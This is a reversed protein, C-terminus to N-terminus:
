ELRLVVLKSVRANQKIEVGARGVHILSFLKEDPETIFRAAHSVGCEVLREHPQLIAMHGPPLAFEENYEAMFEGAPLRWWGYEDSSEKKVPDLAARKGPEFEGGGFDLRGGSAVECISGVTLDLSKAHVQKKEYVLNAVMEAVRAGDLMHAM